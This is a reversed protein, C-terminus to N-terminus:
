TPTGIQTEPVRSQNEEAFKRKAERAAELRETLSKDHPYSKTERELWQIAQDIALYPKDTKKKGFFTMSVGDCLAVIFPMVAELRVYLTGNCEAFITKPKRAM